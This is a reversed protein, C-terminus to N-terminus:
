KNRRSRKKVPGKLKGVYFARWAGEKDLCDIWTVDKQINHALCRFKFTGRVNKFKIPTGPRIIDNGFPLEYQVSIDDNGSWANGFWKNVSPSKKHPPAM